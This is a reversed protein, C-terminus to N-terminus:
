ADLSRLIRDVLAQRAPDAKFREWDKLQAEPTWGAPVMADSPLPTGFALALLERKTAPRVAIPPDTVYRADWSRWFQEEREDECYSYDNPVEDFTSM